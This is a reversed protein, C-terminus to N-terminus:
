QEEEKLIFEGRTVGLKSKLFRFLWRPDEWERLGGRQTRLAYQVLNQGIPDTAEFSLYWSGDVQEVVMVRHVTTRAFIREAAAQKVLQM